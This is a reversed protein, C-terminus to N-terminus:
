KVSQFKANKPNKCTETVGLTLGYNLRNNLPTKYEVDNYM